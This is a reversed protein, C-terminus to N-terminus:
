EHGGSVKLVNNIDDIIERQHQVIEDTTLVEYQFEETDNQREHSTPIDVEMAFDDDGEDGSSVNGSDVNEIEFSDDDSEM